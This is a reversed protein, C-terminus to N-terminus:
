AMKCIETKMNQLHKNEKYISGECCRFIGSLVAKISLGLYSM